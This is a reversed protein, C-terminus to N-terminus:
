GYYKRFIKKLLFIKEQSKKLINYISTPKSRDILVPLLAPQFFKGAEPRHSFLSGVGEFQSSLETRTNCAENGL